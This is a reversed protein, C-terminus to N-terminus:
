PKAAAEVKNRGVCLLRKGDPSWAPAMVDLAPDQGEIRKPAGGAELNIEFLQSRKHENSYKGFVIRPETPHWAFKASLSDKELHKKLDADAGSVAVSVIDKKNDATTGLFLFRKSDPSWCGNWGLSTYQGEANFITRASKAALDYVKLETGVAYAILKGDPSWQTGWGNRDITVIEQTAITMIGVGGSYFSCALKTNDAGWSPMSGSGLLWLEDRETSIVFLRSDSTGEGSDAMWGDFAIYKGDRSFQPSGVASIQPMQFFRQWNKGDAQMSYFGAKPSVTAVIQAVPANVPEAADVVKALVLTAFVFLVWLRRSGPM